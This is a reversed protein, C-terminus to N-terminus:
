RNRQEIIYNPASQLRFAAVAPDDPSLCRFTVSYNTPGYPNASPPTTMQNSRIRAGAALLLRESRHTGATRRDDLWALIPATHKSLTYTNPGAPLIGTSTQCGSLAAACIIAMPFYRM